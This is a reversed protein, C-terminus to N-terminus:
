KKLEEEIRKIEEAVRKLATGGIVDHSNVSRIYDFLDYVDENFLPSFTKYSDLSIDGFKLNNEDAHRVISGVVAHAERFPLGKEVLYDAVDTAFLAGKSSELARNVSKENVGMGRMVESMLDLADSCSEATDFLGEKDEQFDRNYTYPTGKVLTIIALLNGIIRSTKGRILELSDPNKKQPMLSSTTSLEDPLTYFGFEESSFIIIDEAMRSLTLFLSVCIYQFEIMFDRTSIADISNRSLSKFGLTKKLFDRDIGISSGAVAGSGLPLVKLRKEFDVLRDRDRKLAHYYALFLHALSVAQAQRMHTYSPVITTLHLKAKEVLARFLTDLREKLTEVSDMIYLREDLVVQENRSRGTHLKHAADGILEQLRREINMHIDEDEERFEFTGKEIEAEISTLGESILRLEDATLIGRKRLARAYAASGRLDERYLKRDVDISQNVRLFAGHLGKKLRGDRLAM